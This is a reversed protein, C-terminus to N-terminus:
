RNKNNIWTLESIRYILFCIKPSIFIGTLLLKRSIPLNWRILDIYNKRLSKILKKKDNKWEPYNSSLGYKVYKGLIALYARKYNMQAYYSYQPLEKECQNVIKRWIDLLQMDKHNLKNRTIGGLNYFWYYKKQNSYVAKKCKKLIQFNYDIDEFYYGKLFLIDVICEKRFLKDCVCYKIEKRSVRFFSQFLEDKNLLSVAPSDQNITEQESKVIAMEVSSYDAEYTKVLNLLYEYMDKDIWDDSDVFGIYNGTAIDLGSNRADSLGGNNKHIVKIRSDKSAWEDCMKSSNDTSGDDILIIELNKYTQNVISRVCRDLYKETNYIPVIISILDM